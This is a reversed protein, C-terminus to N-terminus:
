EPLMATLGRVLGEINQALQRARHARDRDDETRQDLPCAYDGEVRVVRYGLRRAAGFAFHRWGWGLDVGAVDIARVLERKLLMPGYSYDGPEAGFREWLENIAGETYQQMPPFTAFARSSRAAVVIGVDGGDPADRVFAQLGGAFFQEKDSETYLIYERGSRAAERLSAQAQAVLSGQGGATVSFRPLRELFAALEPRTGKDAVAVPVGASALSGLARRILREEDDDRAWTITAVCVASLEM